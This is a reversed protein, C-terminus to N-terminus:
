LSWRDFDKSLSLCFSRAAEEGKKKGKKSRTSSRPKGRFSLRKRRGKVRDNLFTGIAENRGRGKHPRSPVHIVRQPRYCRRGAMRLQDPWRKRKGGKRGVGQHQVSESKWASPLFRGRVSHAILGGDEKEKEGKEGKLPLRRRKRKKNPFGGLGRFISSKKKGRRGKRKRRLAISWLLRGKRGEGPCTLSPPLKGRRFDCSREIREGGKGGL